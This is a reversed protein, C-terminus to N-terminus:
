RDGRSARRQHEVGAQFAVVATGVLMGVLLIAAIM